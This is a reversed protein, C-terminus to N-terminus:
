KKDVEWSNSYEHNRFAHAIGLQQKLRLYEEAEMGLNECIESDELGLNELKLVLDSMLEVQHLGKIRNMLVTLQVADHYPLEMDVISAEKAGIRKLCEYRHYGDIIRYKQKEEDWTTVIPFIFGFKIISEKLLAMETSPMRNPNYDNAYLETIPVVKAQTAVQNIVIDGDM